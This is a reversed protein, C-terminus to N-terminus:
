GLVDVLVRQWNGGMIKSIEPPSFGEALLADRITMMRSLNNLEPIVVHEPDVEYGPIGLKRMAQWWGLYEKVGQQNDNNLKRLNEQGAMPFDNSIGVADIGGVNIAHRIHAVLHEIRPKSDNTLWFSMMFIGIVGGKDAIARIGEDTICRPHDVIARCAGHSYVVPSRSAEAAELITPISGHSVDPLLGVRNMEAIGARGLETLGSQEREIAGGAFKNDNHHTLQLVRLGKDHFYAIRSLDEGITECSQFQLFAACGPRSGIDSGRDAVFVQDSAEIRGIAADLAADNVGFNRQYRPTGDSDRVEEVESVDCIMATLGAQRIEDLNDPLFSLGDIVPAQRVVGTLSRAAATVNSSGALACLTSAQVFSRRSMSRLNKM